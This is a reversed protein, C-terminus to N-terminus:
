PFVYSSTIDKETVLEGDMLRISVITSFENLNKLIDCLPIYAVGHDLTLIEVSGVGYHSLRQYIPSQLIFDISFPIKALSSYDVSEMMPFQSVDPTISMCKGCTTMCIHRAEHPRYWMPIGIEADVPYEIAKVRACSICMLYLNKMGNHGRSPERTIGNGNKGSKIRQGTAKNGAILGSFSSQNM